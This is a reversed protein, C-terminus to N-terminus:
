TRCPNSCLLYLEVSPGAESLTFEPVSADFQLQLRQLLIPHHIGGEARQWSLIGDGLILEV